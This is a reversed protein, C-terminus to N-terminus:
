GGHPLEFPVITFPIGRMPAGGNQFTVGGYQYSRMPVHTHGFFVQRVGTDPGQGISNLYHLIRDAVRDRRHVAWAAMVHLRATIALDYLQHM